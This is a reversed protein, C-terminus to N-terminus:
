GEYPLRRNPEFVHQSTYSSPAAPPAVLNSEVASPITEVARIRAVVLNKKSLPVGLPDSKKM